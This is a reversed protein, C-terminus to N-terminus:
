SYNSRKTEEESHFKMFRSGFIFLEGKTRGGAKMGGEKRGGECSFLSEAVSSAVDM